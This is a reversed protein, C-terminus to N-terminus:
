EAKFGAAKLAAVIIPAESELLARFEGPGLPAAVGFRSAIEKQVRPQKLVEATRNYIQQVIEPPTKLPAFLGLLYNLSRYRPVFETFTPVDPLEEMRADGSVALARVKGGRLASYSAAIANTSIDVHGGMVDAIAPAGGKYPVRNMKIGTVAILNAFALDGYDAYSYKGPNRRADELFEGLTKWQMKPSVIMVVRGEIVRAVPALDRLIDVPPNKMSERQVLALSGFTFALTRGDPPAHMVSQLGIVGNAGVRNEVIVNSETAASLEAAFLRGFTDGGGGAAYPVVLTTTQGKLLQSWAPRACAGAVPLAAATRLLARRGVLSISSM